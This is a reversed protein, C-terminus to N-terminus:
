FDSPYFGILNFKIDEKDIRTEGQNQLDLVARFAFSVDDTVEPPPNDKEFIISVVATGGLFPTKPANGAAAGSKGGTISCASVLIVLFVLSAIVYRNNM